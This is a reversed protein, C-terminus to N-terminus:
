KAGQVLKRLKKGMTFKVSKREPILVAQQPDKPNRGIKAKRIVPELVGFDRFEIRDGKSLNETIIELMSQVVMRVESATMGRERSIKDVLHKKTITKATKPSNNNTM